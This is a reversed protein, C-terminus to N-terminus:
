MCKQRCNGQRRSYEKGSLCGRWWSRAWRDSELAGALGSAVAVEDVFEVPDDAFDEVGEFRFIQGFVGQDEEGAVVAAHDIEASLFGPSLAVILIAVQEAKFEVSPFAAM